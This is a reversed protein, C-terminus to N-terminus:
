KVKVLANDAQNVVNDLTVLCFYLFICISYTYLYIYTYLIYFYVYLYAVGTRSLKSALYLLLFFYTLIAGRLLQVVSVVQETLSIKQCLFLM